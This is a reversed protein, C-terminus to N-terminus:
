KNTMSAIQKGAEFGTDYGKAWITELYDYMDIYGIMQKGLEAEQGTKNIIKILGEFAQKKEDLQM